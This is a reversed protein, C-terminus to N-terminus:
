IIILVQRWPGQNGQAAASDTAPLRATEARMAGCTTHSLM